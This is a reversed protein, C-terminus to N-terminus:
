QQKKSWYLSKAVRSACYQVELTALLRISRFFGAIITYHVSHLSVQMIIKYVLSFCQLM